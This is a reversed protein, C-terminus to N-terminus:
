NTGNLLKLLRTYHSRATAKVRAGVNGYGKLPTRRLQGPSHDFRQPLTSDALNSETVQAGAVRTEENLTNEFVSMRPRAIPQSNMWDSYVTVVFPLSGQYGANIAATELLPSDDIMCKLFEEQTDECCVEIVRVAFATPDSIGQFLRFLSFAPIEDRSRTQHLLHCRHADGFALLSVLRGVVKQFSCGYDISLNPADSAIGLLAYVRDHERTAESENFKGLLTLLRRDDNWWSERRLPGPMIDLVAQAHPDPRLEMLFPMVSFVSSSISRTGCLVHAARASGVEQIIWVRKFWTHKVVYGLVSRLYAIHTEGLQLVVLRWASRLNQLSKARGRTQEELLTMANQVFTSLSHHNFRGLNNPYRVMLSDTDELAPGLWILVREAKEYVDKMQGVQHGKERDDAQNICLADIWLYRPEHKLRLIALADFLNHTVSKKRGDLLIHPLSYSYEEGWTYSLAEYPIRDGDGLSCEVVDCCITDSLPGECLRLLRIAGKSEDLPTYVHFNAMSEVTLCLQSINLQFLLSLVSASQNVPLQYISKCM